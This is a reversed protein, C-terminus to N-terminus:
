LRLGFCCWLLATFGFLLYIARSRLCSHELVVGICSMFRAKVGSMRRKPWFRRTVCARMITCYVLQLPGEGLCHRGAPWVCGADSDGGPGDQVQRAGSRHLRGAPRRELCARTTSNSVTPCSLARNWMCVICWSNSPCPRRSTLTPSALERSYTRIETPAVLLASCQAFPASSLDGMVPMSDEALVIPTSRSKTSASSADGEFASESPCRPPKCTPHGGPTAPQVLALAHSPTTGCPRGALTTRFSSPPVGIMGLGCWLMDGRACSKCLELKNATRGSQM